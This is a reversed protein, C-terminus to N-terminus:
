CPFCPNLLNQLHLSKFVQKQFGARISDRIRAHKQGGFVKNQHNANYNHHQIPGFQWKKSAMKTVELDLCNEADM